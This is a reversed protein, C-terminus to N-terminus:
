DQWCTFSCTLSSNPGILVLGFVALNLAYGCAHCIGCGTQVAYWCLQLFLQFLNENDIFKSPADPVYALM